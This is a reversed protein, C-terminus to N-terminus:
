LSKLQDVYIELWTCAGIGLCVSNIPLHIFTHVPVSLGPHTGPTWMAAFVYASHILYIHTMPPMLFAESSAQLSPLTM